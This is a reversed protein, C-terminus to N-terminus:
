YDRDAAREQLAQDAYFQEEETGNQIIDILDQTSYDLVSEDTLYADIFTSSEDFEDTEDALDENTVDENGTVKYLRPIIIQGGVM